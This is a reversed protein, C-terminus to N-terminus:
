QHGFEASKMIKNTLVYNEKNQNLKASLDQITRTATELKKGIRGAMEM